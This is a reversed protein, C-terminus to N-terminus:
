VWCANYAWPAPLSTVPFVPVDNGGGGGGGGPASVPPLGTTDTLNYVNLRAPGGCFESANGACPM